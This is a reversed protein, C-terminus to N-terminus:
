RKQWAGILAGVIILGVVTYALYVGGWESM